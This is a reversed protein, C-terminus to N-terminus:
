IPEGREVYNRIGKEVQKCISDNRCRVTLVRSFTDGSIWYSQEEVHIVCEPCDDCHKYPFDTKIEM